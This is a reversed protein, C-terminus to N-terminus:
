LARRFKREVLVAQMKDANRAQSLCLNRDNKKKIAACLFDTRIDNQFIWAILSLPLGAYAVLCQTRNFFLLFLLM